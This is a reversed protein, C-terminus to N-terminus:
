RESAERALFAVIDDQGQPESIWCRGDRYEKWEVERGSGKLAACAQRYGVAEDEVSRCLLVSADVFPDAWVYSTPGDEFGITWESLKELM